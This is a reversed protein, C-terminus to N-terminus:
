KVTGLKVLQIMLIIHCWIKAIRKLGNL